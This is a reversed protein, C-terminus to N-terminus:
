TDESRDSNLLRPGVMREVRAQHQRSARVLWTYGVVLLLSVWAIQGWPRFAPVPVAAVIMPEIPNCCCVERLASCLSVTFQGNFLVLGSRTANPDGWGFCSFDPGDSREIGSLEIVATSSRVARISPRVWCSAGSAAPAVSELIEASSCWHSGAFSTNCQRHQELIELSGNTTGGTHVGVYEAGAPGAVMALCGAFVLLANGVM